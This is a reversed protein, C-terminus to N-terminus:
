LNLTLISQILQSLRGTQGQHRTRVPCAAQPGPCTSRGGGGGNSHGERSSPTGPSPPAVLAESWRAWRPFPYCVGASLCFTHTHECRNKGESERMEEAGKSEGFLLAVASSSSSSTSPRARGESPKNSDGTTKQDRVTLKEPALSELFWVCVCVCM